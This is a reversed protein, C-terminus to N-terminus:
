LNQYIERRTQKIKKSLRKKEQIEKKNLKQTKEKIMLAELKKFEKSKSIMEVKAESRAEIVNGIREGMYSTLGLWAIVAAVRIAANVM